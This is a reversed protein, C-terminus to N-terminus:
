GYPISLTGRQRPDSRRNYFSVLHPHASTVASRIGLTNFEDTEALSHLEHIAILDKSSLEELSLRKTQLNM